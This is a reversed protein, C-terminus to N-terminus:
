FARIMCAADGAHCGFKRGAVVSESVHCGSHRARGTPCVACQPWPRRGRSTCLVALRGTGCKCIQVSCLKFLFLCRHERRARLAARARGWRPCASHSVPGFPRGSQMTLVRECHRVTGFVSAYRCMAQCHKVTDSLTQCHRVTSSLAQFHKVTGYLRGRRPGAKCFM